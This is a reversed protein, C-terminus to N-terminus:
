SSKMLGYAILIDLIGNIATRANADIGPDGAGGTPDAIFNQQTTPSTGYFGLADQKLKLTNGFETGNTVGLQINRGDLIQVPRPIVFKENKLFFSLEERIIQRVQQEDMTKM